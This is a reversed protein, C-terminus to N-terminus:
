LPWFRSVIAPRDRQHRRVLDWVQWFWRRAESVSHGRYRCLLGAQLRTIGCDVRDGTPLHSRAETILEKPLEEGIWALMGVIPCGALGHSGDRTAPDTADIRQPDLWV